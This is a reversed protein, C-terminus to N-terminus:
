SPHVFADQGPRENREVEAIPRLLRNDVERDQRERQADEKEVAVSPVHQRRPHGFVKLNQVPAMIPRTDGAQVRLQAHWIVQLIRSKAWQQTRCISFNAMERLTHCSSSGLANANSGPSALRASGLETAPLEKHFCLSPPVGVSSSQSLAPLERVM